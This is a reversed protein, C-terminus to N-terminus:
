GQEQLGLFTVALIGLVVAILAKRVKPAYKKAGKILAIGLLGLILTPLHTLEISQM